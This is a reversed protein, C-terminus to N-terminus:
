MGGLVKSVIYAHPACAYLLAHVVSWIVPLLVAVALLGMAIVTTTEEFKGYSERRIYPNFEYSSGIYGKNGKEKIIVVMEEHKDKIENFDDKYSKDAQRGLKFAWYVTVCAVLVLGVAMFFGAALKAFFILSIADLVIPMIDTIAHGYLNALQEGVEKLIETNM